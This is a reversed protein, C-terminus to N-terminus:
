PLGLSYLTYGLEWREPIRFQDLRGLLWEIDIFTTRVSVRVLGNIPTHGIGVAWLRGDLCLSFSTADPEPVRFEMWSQHEQFGPSFNFAVPHARRLRPPCPPGNAPHSARDEAVALGVLVILALGLLGV